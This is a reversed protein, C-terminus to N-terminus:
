STWARKIEELINPRKAGHIWRQGQRISPIVVSLANSDITNFFPGTEPLNQMPVNALMAWASLLRDAFGEEKVSDWKRAVVDMDLVSEMDLTWPPCVYRMAMFRAPESNSCLTGWLGKQVAPLMRGLYFSDYEFIVYYPSGIKILAKLMGKYREVAPDGMHGSPGIQMTRVPYVIPTDTPTLVVVPLGYSMWLPLHREFTNQAGRHALIIVTTNSM